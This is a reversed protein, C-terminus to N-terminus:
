LLASLLFSGLDKIVEKHLQELGPDDGELCGIAHLVLCEKSTTHYTLNETVRLHVCDKSIFYCLHIGFPDKRKREDFNIGQM